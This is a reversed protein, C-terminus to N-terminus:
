FLHATQFAAYFIAAYGLSWAADRLWAPLRNM